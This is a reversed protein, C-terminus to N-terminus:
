GFDYVGPLTGAETGRGLIIGFGVVDLVIPLV